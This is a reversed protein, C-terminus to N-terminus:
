DCRGIANQWEEEEKNEVGEIEDIIAQAITKSHEDLSYDRIFEARARILGLKIRNIPIM